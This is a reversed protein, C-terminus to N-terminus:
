LQLLTCPQRLAHRAPRALGVQRQWGGLPGEKVKREHRTTVNSSCGGRAAVWQGGGEKQGSPPSGEKDAPRAPRDDRNDVPHAAGNGVAGNGVPHAAGGGGGVPSRRPALPHVQCPWSPEGNKYVEPSAGAGHRERQHGRHTDLMSAPMTRRNGRSRRAASGISVGTSAM